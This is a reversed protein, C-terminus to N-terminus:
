CASDGRSKQVDGLDELLNTPLMAERARDPDVLARLEDRAIAIEPGILTTDREVEGSRSLWRVIAVDIREVALEPGFAEVHM